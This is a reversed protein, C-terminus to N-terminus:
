DVPCTFPQNRKKRQDDVQITFFGLFQKPRQCSCFAQVCFGGPFFIKWATVLRFSHTFFVCELVFEQQNLFFLASDYLFKVHCCYPVISIELAVFPVGARMRVFPFVQFRLM